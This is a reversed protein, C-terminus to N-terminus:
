FLSPTPRDEDNILINLSAQIWNSLTKQKCLVALKYIVTVNLLKNTDSFSSLVGKETDANGSGCCVSHSSVDVIKVGLPWLPIMKTSFIDLNVLIMM